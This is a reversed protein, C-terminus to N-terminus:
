PRLKHLRHIRPGRNSPRLCLVLTLRHQQKQRSTACSRAARDHPSPPPSLPPSCCRRCRRRALRRTSAARSVKVSRHVGRTTWLRSVELGVRGDPGQVRPCLDSAPPPIGTRQCHRGPRRSCLGRGLRRGGPCPQCPQLVHRRHSLYRLVGTAAPPRQQEATRVLRKRGAALAHIM